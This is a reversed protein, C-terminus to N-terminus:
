TILLYESQSKKKKEVDGVDVFHVWAVQLQEQEKREEQSLYVKLVPSPVSFPVLLYGEMIQTRLRWEADM